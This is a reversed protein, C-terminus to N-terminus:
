ECCSKPSARSVPPPNLTVSTQSPRAWGCQAGVSAGPGALAGFAQASGAAIEIPDGLKTGTGHAEIYTIARPDVGSEQWARIIVDQQARPNPVSYATPKGGHNVASGKIVGYIHDRDREADALRKLILVGV